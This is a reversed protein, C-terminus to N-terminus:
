NVNHQEREREQSSSSEKAESRGYFGTLGDTFFFVSDSSVHFRGACIVTTTLVLRFSEPSFYQPM